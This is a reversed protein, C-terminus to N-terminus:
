SADFLHAPMPQPERYRPTFGMHPLLHQEIDIGPALETLELGDHTLRFVARETVYLVDQGRALAQPGSFTAETVRHVFKATDGERQIHLRGDRAKVRAGGTTFHGCFIVRRANQSIDVFGGPGIIGPGLRHVNVSGAADVQGLGLFAADLIGAAYLDFQSPSSLTVEQGRCTGFMAGTLPMGGTHGQEVSFTIEGTRRQEALADAVESSVGFGLNILQGPQVELAARRAILRRIPCTPPTPEPEAAVPTRGYLAPDYGGLYTQQQDPCLTVTDVLHRPIHVDGPPLPDPLRERVQALVVGGCARAAQAVALADLQAAEERLTINGHPDVATGRM